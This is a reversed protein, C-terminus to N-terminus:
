AKPVWTFKLGQPNTFTTGNPVWVKRAKVLGLNKKHICSTSIHGIRGCYNCVIKHEDKKVFFNNFHKVNIMEEYDLGAEDFVCRQLGLLNDLKANSSSFKSFTKKLADVELKLKKNEEVFDNSLKSSVNLVEIENM